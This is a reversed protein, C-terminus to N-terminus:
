NTALTLDTALNALYCKLQYILSQASILHAPKYDVYHKTSRKIILVSPYRAQLCQTISSHVLNVSLSMQKHTTFVFLILSAAVM